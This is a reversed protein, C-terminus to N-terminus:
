HRYIKRFKWELLVDKSCMTEFVTYLKLHQAKLSLIGHAGFLIFFKCLEVRKLSYRM